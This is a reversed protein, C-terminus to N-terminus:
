IGFAPVLGALRGFQDSIMLFGIILLVAGNLLSLARQHRMLWSTGGALRSFGLASALLPIGLGLSFAVLLLSGQGVTSATTALGIVGGLIPGICPTWGAGFALGMLTSRGFSPAVEGTRGRAGGAPGAPGVRRHLAPIDILGAVHLGLVVLIAGGGIRLLEQHDGLLYGVLGISAWLGVFVVTFGGIFAAAHAAVRPGHPRTAAATAGATAGTGGVLYTLFVPVIPLFCPSLFAVVGAAMALPITVGEM